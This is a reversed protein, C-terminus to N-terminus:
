KFKVRVKAINKNEEVIENYGYEDLLHRVEEKSLGKLADM